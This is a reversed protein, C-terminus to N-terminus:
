IGWGYELGALFVSVLVEGAVALPQEGEMCDEYRRGKLGAACGVRLTPMTHSPRMRSPMSVNDTGAARGRLLRGVRRAEGCSSAAGVNNNLGIM